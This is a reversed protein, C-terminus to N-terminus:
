IAIEQFMPIDNLFVFENQQANFTWCYHQIGNSVCLFTANLKKNYRSVQDFVNQTINVQPAKCEVLLIPNKYKNYIVIDVRKQLANYKLGSEVGIYTQLYGKHNILFHLFNQRVWEEPSLVLWKRRIIDFIYYDNDKEKM